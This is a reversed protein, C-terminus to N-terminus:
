AEPLKGAIGAQFIANIELYSLARNYLSVEDIAGQTFLSPSSGSLGCGILLSHFDFGPTKTLSENLVVQAGDIYLAHSHAAPDAAYAVHYWRQAGLPNPSILTPGMGLSDGVAGFLFGSQMWLAFSYQDLGVPKAILHSTAAITDLLVWAEITLAAPHLPNATTDPIDVRASVGDFTFADGVMGTGFGAGNFLTGPHQGIADLADANAPWWGILGPPAALPAVVQVKFRHTGIRKAADIVQLAFSFSGTTSPVGHFQQHISDFEWGPPMSSDTTLSFTAPLTGLVSQVQRDLLPFGTVAVVEAPSTIYPASSDKGCPGSDFIAFIEDPTLARSYLSLEDIAGRFFDTLEAGQQDAAITPALHDGLGYTLTPLGDAEAVQIGNVYLRKTTGDFSAALHTWESDPFVTTGSLEDIGHTRFYPKGDRFGLYWDDGVNNTGVFENTGHSIVTGTQGGSPCFVWAEITLEALDLDNAETVQLYGLDESTNLLNIWMAPGVVGPKSIVPIATTGGVVTLHHAGIIDPFQGTVNDFLGPWWAVLGAPPAIPERVRLVFQRDTFHQAADTARVTFGYTGALTPEGAIRGDSFLVMGAPILGGQLSFTVPVTGLATVLSVNSSLGVAAPPLATTWDTLFYPNIVDKGAVDSDAIDLIERATLARRYLSIEALMGAFFEASAGTSWGSGITVPVTQSTDYALAPMNGQKNVQRGNVFLRKTNGDFTAALHTWANAPASQPPGDLHQMGHSWFKAQGAEVTLSWVKSADNASGHAIVTQPGIANTPFVWAELTLAAQRLDPADDIQISTSIGDFVFADAVKGETSVTAATPTPGTFFTGNHGSIIDAVTADGRWFSVLGQPIPVPTSAFRARVSLDNMLTVTVPNTTALAGLGPADWGVFTAGSSAAATLTVADGVVYSRKAPAIEVSGGPDAYAILVLGPDPAGLTGDDITLSAPTSTVSGLPNTVVVIYDGAQLATVNDILLTDGAANPIVTGNFSWQFTSGASDAVVVSFSAYSGAPIVQPIPQAVITPAAALEASRSTLNGSADYSYRVM